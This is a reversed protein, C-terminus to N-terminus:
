KNSTRRKSPPPQISDQTNKINKKVEDSLESNELAQKIISNKFISRLNTILQSLKEESENHEAKRQDLQKQYNKNLKDSSKRIDNTQKHLEDLKYTTELLNTKLTFCNQIIKASNTSLQTYNVQPINDQDCTQIQKILDGIKIIENQSQFSKQLIIKINNIVPELFQHEPSVKFANMEQLSKKAAILFNEFVQLQINGKSQELKYTLSDQKIKLGENEKTVTEIAKKSAELEQKQSELEQSKQDLTSNLFNIQNKIAQLPDYDEDVYSLSKKLPTPTPTPM